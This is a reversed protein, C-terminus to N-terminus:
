GAKPSADARVRRRRTAARRSCRASGDASRRASTAKVTSATTNTLLAVQQESEIGDAVADLSLRHAISLIASCIVQADKNKDLDSIFSRDIKLVDLPFHRLYSLCSYGAGFDDIALRVGVNKLARLSERTGDTDAMLSNETLELEILAPDISHSELV